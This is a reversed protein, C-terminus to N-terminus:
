TVKGESLVAEIGAVDDQSGLNYYIDGLFLFLAYTPYTQLFHGIHKTQLFYGIRKTFLYLSLQAIRYYQTSQYPSPRCSQCYM